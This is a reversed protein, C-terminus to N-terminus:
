GDGDPRRHVMIANAIFREKGRPVDAGGTPVNLLSLDGDRRAILSSSGGGDLGMANHAGLDRALQALEGFTVGAPQDTGGLGFARGSVTGLLLSGSKTTAVFSRAAEYRDVLRPLFFSMVASDKTGFEELAFDIETKGDRVLQPGCAMAEIVRGRAKPFNNEVHVPQGSQLLAHVRTDGEPVSLVFGTLPIQIGGGAEFSQVSDGQIGYDIHHARKPTRQGWIPTYVALEHPKPIHNEVDWPVAEDGITLSTMKTRQIWPRGDETIVLACRNFVAPTFERGREVYWGVPDGFRLGPFLSCDIGLLPANEYHGYDFFFNGNIAAFAKEADAKERLRFLSAKRFAPEGPPSGLPFLTSCEAITLRESRPASVCRLQAKSPDLELIDAVVRKPGFPGNLVEDIHIWRGIDVDEVVRRGVGTRFTDLAVFRHWGLQRPDTATTGDPTRLSIFASTRRQAQEESETERAESLLACAAEDSLHKVVWEADQQTEGADILRLLDASELRLLIARGAVSGACRIIAAVRRPRDAGHLMSRLVRTSFDPTLAGVIRGLCEPAVRTYDDCLVRAAYGPSLGELLLATRGPELRQLIIPVLDRYPRVLNMAYLSDESHVIWEFVARAEELPDKRLMALVHDPDKRFRTVVELADLDRPESARFSAIADLNRGQVLIRRHLRHVDLQTCLDAHPARVVLSIGRADARDALRLVSVLEDDSWARYAPLALEKAEFSEIVQLAEEISRPRASATTESPRM